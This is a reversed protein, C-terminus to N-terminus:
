TDPGEVGRVLRTRATGTVTKAGIGIIPLLQLDVTQTVTVTVIGGAVTVSGTHGLRDLYATAAAQVAAPDTAVDGRRV